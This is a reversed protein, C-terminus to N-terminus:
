VITRSVQLPRDVPSDRDRAIGSTLESGGKGVLLVAGRHAPIVGLILDLLERQLEEPNRISNIATSIRLLANLHRAVRATDPLSELLTEPKLYLADEPRLEVTIQTAEGGEDLEVAAAAPLAADERRLFVFVSRSVGVRDGHELVREKVPLNNVFTGHRSNLDALVFREGERRVACHQRSVSESPLCLRNVPLRGITFEDQDLVFAQGQLPGSIALLRPWDASPEAERTKAM